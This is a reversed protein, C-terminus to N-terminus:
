RTGRWRVPFGHAGATALLEDTAGPWSTLRLSMARLPSEPEMRLWYLPAHATAAQGADEILAFFEQREGPEMYQAVVSHVVVTAVGPATKALRQPLWQMAGAKAVHVPENRALELAGRLREHRAPQDAWVAAMLSLRGEDSLPEVPQPDCGARAVVRVQQGLLGRPVDWHGHLQVPSGPDGWARDDGHNSYHFRDWRLNLGASAGIELVRLPLGSDRAALLFGVVLGACRAVENTQCLRAVLEGLRDRQQVLLSRMALWAGDVGATGGVSAFHPALAPADGQLVLRHVAAMFRLALATNTDRTAHRELVAWAPGEGRVDDAAATLLAAYLDSGLIRCAPAQLALMYATWEQLSADAAPPDPAVPAAHRGAAGTPATPMSDAM